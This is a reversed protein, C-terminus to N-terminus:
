LKIAKIGFVVPVEFDKIWDENKTLEFIKEIKFLEFFRDTLYESLTHSPFELIFRGHAKFSIQEKKEYNKCKKLFIESFPHPITFILYSNEKLVRAIELWASNLDSLYHLSHKAIVIDFKNESFPLNTIDSVLRNDLFKTKRKAEEIMLESNDVGFVEKAGAKYFDEIDRGYGCGLDLVIKKNFNINKLIFEKSKQEKISPLNKGASIYDKGIEDYQKNNM